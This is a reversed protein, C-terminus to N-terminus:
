ETDLTIMDWYALSPATFQVYRGVADTGMRYPLALSRGRQDDPSAVHVATVTGVLGYYKVAVNTQPTPAPYTGNTDRWANDKEGRLNILHIVHRHANFKAFAWVTDPQADRSEPVNLSIAGTSAWLGGRLLNEYAVVFDYYGRLCALLAPTPRLNRNPFYESDLLAGCDGLEIHSGGSAFIAADTLLVGPPNFAGPPRGESAHAADYDMYAALIVGKGGSWERSQDITTKLDAYTSQGAFPWCEVYVADVPANAATDYLGYGGVNNFILTKHLAPKAVQLFPKFTKWVDVVNGSVDYKKGGPDGIQDVHWGDFPYAAFVQDEQGILYAQWGPNAPNFFYLRPTQWGGPMPVSYQDTGNPNNWLGWRYDVGSDTYGSWAGYLLNYNMAVMGCDHCAHILDLITRRFTPRGALDNWSDAPRAVTGALPREHRWQWDYFQIANLHYDKLRRITERSVAAPQDPYASLYGYRPFRTWDSSVDVATSGNGLPRGGIDSAEAGIWYGQFDTRPPKWVFRLSSAQGPALRFAQASPAGPIVADLHQCRLRVTGRIVAPSTNALALTFVVPVGPSYRARDTTVDAIVSAAPAGAAARAPTLGAALTLLALFILAKM